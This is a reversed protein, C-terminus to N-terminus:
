GHPPSPTLMVTRWTKTVTPQWLALTAVLPAWPRPLQKECVHQKASARKGTEGRDATTAVQELEFM